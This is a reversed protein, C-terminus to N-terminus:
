DINKFVAVKFFLKKLRPILVVMRESNLNIIEHAEFLSFLLDTVVM